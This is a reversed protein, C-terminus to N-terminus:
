VSQIVQQRERRGVAHKHTCNVMYWIKRAVLQHGKVVVSKDKLNISNHQTQTQNSLQALYKYKFHIPEFGTLEFSWASDHDKLGLLFGWIIKIQEWFKLSRAAVMTNFLPFFIDNFHCLPVSLLDNLVVKCTDNSIHFMYWSIHRNWYSIVFVSVMNNQWRMNKSEGRGACKYDLLKWVKESSKRPILQFQNPRPDTGASHNVYTLKICVKFVMTQFWLWPQRNEM